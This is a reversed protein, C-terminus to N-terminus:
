TANRASGMLIPSVPPVNLLTTRRLGSTDFRLADMVSKPDRDPHCGGAVRPWVPGLARQTFRTFTRDEAVVHELVGVVGGPKVVRRVERLVDDPDTVSCLVYTLLASDVSNDPLPVAEGVADHVNVSLGLRRARAINEEAARRMPASPEVAEIATVAPPLHHLDEAPGLGVILTRGSLGSCVEGRAEGIRGSDEWGALRSYLASFVRHDHGKM